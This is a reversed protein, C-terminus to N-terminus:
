WTSGMRPSRAPSPWRKPTRNSETNSELPVERMSPVVIPSGGYNQILKAMETGRRSELSLVRLGALGASKFRQEM